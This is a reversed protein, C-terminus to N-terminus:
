VRARCRRARREFTTTSRVNRTALRVPSRSIIRWTRWARAPTAALAEELATGVRLHLEARRLASLRDYIARRVLEHTFRYALGTAPIEEIMGSRVGEDLAELLNREDLGAAHRIVELTFEPGAVAAVELVDRTPPALRSLRQSVM